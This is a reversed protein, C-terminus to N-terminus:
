ERDWVSHSANALIACDSLRASAECKTDYLADGSSREGYDDRILEADDSGAFIDNM